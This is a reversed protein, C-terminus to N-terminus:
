HSYWLNKKQNVGLQEWFIGEFELIGELPLIEKLMYSPPKEKSIVGEKWEIILTIVNTTPFKSFVSFSYKVQLESIAM